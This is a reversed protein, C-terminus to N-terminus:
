ELKLSYNSRLYKTIKLVIMIGLAILILLLWMRFFILPLIFYLNKQVIGFDSKENNVYYTKELGKWEHRVEKIGFYKEENFPSEIYVQKGRRTSYDFESFQLIIFLLLFSILLSKGITKSINNLKGKNIKIEKKQTM